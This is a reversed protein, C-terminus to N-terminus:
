PAAADAAPIGQLNEDLVAHVFPASETTSFQKALDVADYIASKLQDKAYPAQGVTLRLLSRDVIAMREIRWRRSTRTISEDIAARHVITHTVRAEVAAKVDASIATPFEEPSDGLLGWFVSFEAALENESLAWLDRIDVAYLLQLALSQTLSTEM